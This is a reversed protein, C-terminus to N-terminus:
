AIFHFFLLAIDIVFIPLPPFKEWLRVAKERKAAREFASAFYNISERDRKAVGIFFFVWGNSKNIQWGVVLIGTEWWKHYAMSWPNIDLTIALDIAGM